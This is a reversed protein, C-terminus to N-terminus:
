KKNLQLLYTKRFKIISMILMLFGILIICTGGILSEKLMLFGTFLILGIVATFFVAIVTIFLYRIYKPVKRSKSAAIGGELILELIFEFIFDM